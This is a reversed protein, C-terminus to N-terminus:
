YQVLGNSWTQHCLCLFPFFAGHASHTSNVVCDLLKLKVEPSFVRDWVQVVSCKQVLVLYWLVSLLCESQCLGIISWGTGSLTRGFWPNKDFCRPLNHKGPRRKCNVCLVLTVQPWKRGKSDSKCTGRSGSICGMQVPYILLHEASFDLTIGGVPVSVGVHRGDECKRRVRGREGFWAWVSVDDSLTVVLVHLYVRLLASSVCASVHVWMGGGIIPFTPWPCSGQISIVSFM